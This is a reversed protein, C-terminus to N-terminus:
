RRGRKGTPAAKVAKRRKPIRALAKEVLFAAESKMQSDGAKWHQVKRELNKATAGPMLKLMERALDTATMGRAALESRLEETKM